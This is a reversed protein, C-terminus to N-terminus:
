ANSYDIYCAGNFGIIAWQMDSLFSAGDQGGIGDGGENMNSELITFPLGGSWFQSLMLPVIPAAWLREFWNLPKLSTKTIEDLGANEYAFRFATSILDQIQAADLYGTIVNDFPAQQRILTRNVMGAIRSGASNAQSDTYINLTAKLLGKYAYTLLVKTASQCFESDGQL